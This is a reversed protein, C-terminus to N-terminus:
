SIPPWQALFVSREGSAQFELTRYLRLAPENRSDVSLLLTKAGANKAYRRAFKVLEAGLRRGRFNPAIGLYTLDFAGPEGARDLLVVGVLKTSAENARRALLPEDPGDSARGAILVYFWHECQSDPEIYGDLLESDTRSGTVEPCDLSGEFTALLTAAFADRNAPGYPEFILGSDPAAGDGLECRFDALRAIHQFGYRVLPAHSDRELERAFAQCVKAGRSRLWGCSAAVLEDEIATRDRGRDATPPWALGLAGPMAQVVMAGRIAGAESRAVFLGAPELEGSDFLELYRRAARDRDAAPHVGVLLRCAAEREEIIAPSISVSM